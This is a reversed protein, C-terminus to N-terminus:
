GRLQNSLGFLDVEDWAEAIMAEIENHLDPFAELFMAVAARQGTRGRREGNHTFDESLLRDVASLDRANIAEAYFRRVLDKNPNTDASM